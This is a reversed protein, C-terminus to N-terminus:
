NTNPCCVPLMLHMIPYTVHCGGVHGGAVCMGGAVCAVGMVCMGQWAGWQWVHGRGECAHGRAMCGRGHVGVNGCMGWEGAMCAARQWAHGRGHVRGQWVHWGALCAGGQWVHGGRNHMGGHMGGRGHMTGRGCMSGEGCMSGHVDGHMGWELVGGRSVTLTRTTRMRSSHM